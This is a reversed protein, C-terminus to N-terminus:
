GKVRAERLDRAVADASRQGADGFGGGGPTCVRLVSNLPLRVDAAASPLVREDACGPNFVFRGRAGPEGGKMGDAEVHQRESSLSVVIDDGLVRYDRIVGMGGRFQGAGGSGEWLAYREVRFPFAHELAEIPLNSAGSAHVRVADMGDRNSRAGMGGAVTEYNV